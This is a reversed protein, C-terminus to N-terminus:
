NLSLLFIRQIDGNMKKEQKTDNGKKTARILKALRDNASFSTKRMCTNVTVNM